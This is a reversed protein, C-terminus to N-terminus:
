EQAGVLDGLAARAESRASVLEPGGLAGLAREVVPIAQGAEGARVLAEGGRGIARNAVAGAARTAGEFAQGAGRFDRYQCLRGGQFRPYLLPGGRHRLEPLARPPTACPAAPAPCAGGQARGALPAPVGRAALATAGPCVGEQHLGGAGGPGDGAGLSAPAAHGRAAARVAGPGGSWGRDGLPGAVARSSPAPPCAWVPADPSWPFRDAHLFQMSARGASGQRERPNAFRRALRPALHTWRASGPKVDSHPVAYVVASEPYPGSLRPSSIEA